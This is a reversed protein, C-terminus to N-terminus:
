EAIIQVTRNLDLTAGFEDTAGKGEIHLKNADVGYQELANAVARARRISLEQNYEANGEESAFGVITFHQDTAKIFDAITRVNLDYVGLIKDSNQEFGITAFVPKTVVETTEIVGTPRSLCEDLDKRMLELAMLLDNNSKRLENTVAMLEDWQDQTYRKDCAKFFHTGHSNKFNYTVGLAIGLDMYNVNYQLKGPASLNYSVQPIINFQWGKRLNIDVRVGMKTYMNNALIDYNRQWGIGVFPVVEVDQRYGYYGGIYNLNTMANIGVRHERIRKYFDNFRADGDLELGFRPTFWKGVRLGASMGLWDGTKPQGETGVTVGVYTEDFIRGQEIAPKQANMTAVFAVLGFLFTFIRKM